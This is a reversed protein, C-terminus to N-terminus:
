RVCVKLARSKTHVDCVVLLARTCSRDRQTDFARRAREIKSVHSPITQVSGLFSSKQLSFKM